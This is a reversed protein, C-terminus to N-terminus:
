CRKRNLSGKYPFLASLKSQIVTFGFAGIMNWFGIHWGLVNPAPIYWKPQTELM